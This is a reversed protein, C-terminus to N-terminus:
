REGLFVTMAITGGFQQRYPVDAFLHTWGLGARVAFHRSVSVELGGDARFAFLSRRTEVGNDLRTAYGATVQLYPVALSEVFKRFRIGALAATQNDRILRGSAAREATAILWELQVIAAWEDSLNLAGTGRAGAFAHHDSDRIMSVGITLDMASDRIPAPPAPADQAHAAAPACLMLAVCAAAAVRVV